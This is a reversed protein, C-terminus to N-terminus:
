ALHLSEGATEGYPHPRPVRLLGTQGRRAAHLRHQVGAAPRRRLADAQPEVVRRRAQLLMVVCDPQAMRCILIIGEACHRMFATLRCRYKCTSPLMVPQNCLQDSCAFSAPLLCPAPSARRRMQGVTDDDLLDVAADLMHLVEFVTDRNIKVGGLLEFLFAGPRTAGTPGCAM